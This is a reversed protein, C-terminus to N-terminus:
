NIRYADYVVELGKWRCCGVWMGVNVKEAYREDTTKMSIFVRYQCLTPDAWGSNAPDPLVQMVEPPGLRFGQTTCEIYAPPEDGTQLRHTAEIQTALTKGYVLDRSDQEGGVVIGRGLQGSWVGETFTTRKKGDGDGVAVSASKPDLTVKMRFDSMFNPPLISLHPDPFSQTVDEQDRRPRESTKTTSFCSGPNQSTWRREVEEWGSHRRDQPLRDLNVRGAMVSTDWDTDAPPAPIIPMAGLRPMRAYM